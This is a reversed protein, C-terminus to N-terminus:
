FVLCVEYGLKQMFYLNLFYLNVVQGMSTAGHRKSLKSRDLALTLSVVHAFSPM